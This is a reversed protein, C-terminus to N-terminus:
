NNAVGQLEAALAVAEGVHWATEAQFVTNSRVVVRQGLAAMLAAQTADDQPVIQFRRAEVCTGDLPTTVELPEVTEVILAEILTGNPHYTKLLGLTGEIRWEPGECGARAAVPLILLAMVMLMKM